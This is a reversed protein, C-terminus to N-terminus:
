LQIKRLEEGSTTLLQKCQKLVAVVELRLTESYRLLDFPVNEGDQRMKTVVLDVEDAGKELVRVLAVYRALLPKTVFTQDDLWNEFCKRSLTPDTPSM